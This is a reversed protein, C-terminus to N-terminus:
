EEVKIVNSFANKFYEANEAPDTFDIETYFYESGAGWGTPDEFAITSLNQCSAFAFHGIITVSTPITVSTLGTCGHFAYSGISVINKPIKISTLRSCGAFAGKGIITVSGDTPIVSNKCGIVLTKSETDIVCNGSSHYKKNGVNVTINELSDGAGGFMSLEGTSFINGIEVVGSGIVLSQINDCGAFARDSIRTVTDPIIYETKSTNKVQTITCSSGSQYYYFDDLPDSVVSVYCTATKGNYTTATITASGGGVATVKGNYVTAVKTNSSKWTVSKSNANYPSVTATLTYTDGNMLELTEENLSVSTPTVIKAMVYVVCTAIKGNSTAAVVVATGERKATITGNKVAAISEDSSTWEVSKDFTNSPTIVFTLTATEGATLVLDDRSLSINTAEVPKPDEEENKENANIDDNTGNNNNTEGNGNDNVNEAPLDQKAAGEKDCGTFAICLLMVLCLLLSITSTLTRKM